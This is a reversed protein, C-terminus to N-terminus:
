NSTLLGVIETVKSLKGSLWSYVTSVAAFFLAQSAFLYPLLNADYVDLFLGTLLSQLLILVAVSLFTNCSLQLIKAGEGKQFGMHAM